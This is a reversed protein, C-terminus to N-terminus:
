VFLLLLFMTIDNVDTLATRCLPTVNGESLECTVMTLCCCVVSVRGSIHACMINTIVTNCYISYWVIPKWLDVNTALPALVCSSGLQTDAGGAVLTSKNAHKVSLKYTSLGYTNLLCFLMGYTHDITLVALGVGDQCQIWDFTGRRKM